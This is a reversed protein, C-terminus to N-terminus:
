QPLTVTTAGTSGTVNSGVGVAKVRIASSNVSSFSLQYDGAYTSLMDKNLDTYNIPATGGGTLIYSAAAANVRAVGEALAANVAKTKADSILRNYKPVIVAALFGLLLLVAIIEILTFGQENKKSCLAKM